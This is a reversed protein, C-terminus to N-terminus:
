WHRDGQMSKIFLSWFFEAAGQQSLAKARPGAMHSIGLADFTMGQDDCNVSLMENSSGIQANADYSFSISNSSMMGGGLQVKCQAELNGARFARATFVDASNRRFKTEVGPNRRSLEALSEEFFRAMFEFGDELFTHRDADSFTKRVALNSSRVHTQRVTTAVSAPTTSGVQGMQSRVANSIPDQSQQSSIAPTRSAVVRRIATAVELYADEAYAFKAVPKGDSPVGMFKGLPTKRWECSHLIVPVIDAQGAAQRELARTMEIEYCYHSDIFDVSLLFLFVDAAEIQAMITPDLQQGPVIRRDHWTEILKERKLMALHKELRDRMVEDAHSYSMFVNAM